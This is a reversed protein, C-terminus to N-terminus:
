VTIGAREFVEACVMKMEVAAAKRSEGRKVRWVPELKATKTAMQSYLQSNFVNDGLEERLQDLWKQETVSRRMVLTPLVGLLSVGTNWRQEKVTSISGFLAGLGDIADQDLTCTCVVGDAAILAAYLEHGLTPPTDIICVDYNDGLRALAARPLTMAEIPMSPVDLLEPTAQVLDLTDACRLPERKPPKKEFLDAAVLAQAAAAEEGYNHECLHLFTKSFNQQPDLDVVLTRLGNEMAYFAMHRAVTTKGVGGKQNAVVITKM